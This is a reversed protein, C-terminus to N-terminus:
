NRASVAGAVSKHSPHNLPDSPPFTTACSFSFLPFINGVFNGPAMKLKRETMPVCFRERFARRRLSDPITITILATGAGVAGIVKLPTRAGVALYVPVTPSRTDRLSTVRSERRTVRLVLDCGERTYHITAHPIRGATM